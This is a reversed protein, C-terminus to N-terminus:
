DSRCSACSGSRVRRPSAPLRGRHRRRDTSRSWAEWDEKTAAADRPHFSSPATLADRQCSPTPMFAVTDTSPEGPVSARAISAVVSVAVAGAEVTAATVSGRHGQHRGPPLSAAGHAHGRARELAGPDRRAGGRPPATAQWQRRRSLKPLLAARRAHGMPVPGMPAGTARRRRLHCRPATRVSSGSPAPPM